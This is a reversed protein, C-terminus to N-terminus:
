IRLLKGLCQGGTIRNNVPIGTLDTGKKLFIVDGESSVSGFVIVTYPFRTQIFQATDQKSQVCAM